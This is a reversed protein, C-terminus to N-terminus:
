PAASAYAKMEDWVADRLAATIRGKMDPLAAELAKVKPKGSADFADKPLNNIAGIMAVRLADDIEPLPTSADAEAVAELAGLVELRAAQDAGGLDEASVISGAELRSAALVTRKILYMM